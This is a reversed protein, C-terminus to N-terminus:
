ESEEEAKGAEDEALQVIEKEHARLTDVGREKYQPHFRQHDVRGREHRSSERVYGCASTTKPPVAQADRELRACLLTTSVESSHLRSVSNYKPLSM